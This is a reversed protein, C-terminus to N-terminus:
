SVCHKVFPLNREAANSFGEDSLEPCSDSKIVGDEQARRQGLLSPTSEIQADRQVTVILDDQLRCRRVIVDQISVAPKTAIVCAVTQRHGRFGSVGRSLRGAPECGWHTEM